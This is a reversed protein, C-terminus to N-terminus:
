CRLLARRYRTQRPSQLRPLKRPQQTRNRHHRTRIETEIIDRGSRALYAWVDDTTFDHLNEACWTIAEAALVKWRTSAHDNTQSMGVNRLDAGTPAFLGFDLKSM